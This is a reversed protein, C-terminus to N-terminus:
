KREDHMRIFNELALLNEESLGLEDRERAFKEATGNGGLFGNLRAAATSNVFDRDNPYIAKFEGYIAEAGRLSYKQHYDEALTFGAFPVVATAAKRGTASEWEALAERAAKEQQANHTFIASEYQRVPSKWGADHSDLFVKLLGRYTVKEPDFDIQITEM